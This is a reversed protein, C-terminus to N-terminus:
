NLYIKILLGISQTLFNPPHTFNPDPRVRIKGILRHIQGFHVPNCFGAGTWDASDILEPCIFPEAAIHGM